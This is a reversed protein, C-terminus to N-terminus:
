RPLGAIVLETLRRVIWIIQFKLSVQAPTPAESNKPHLQAALQKNEQFGGRSPKAKRWLEM